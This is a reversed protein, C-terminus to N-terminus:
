CFLFATAAAKKTKERALSFPINKRQWTYCWCERITWIRMAIIHHRRMAFGHWSGGRGVGRAYAIASALSRFPPFTRGKTYISMSFCLVINQWNLMLFYLFLFVQAFVRWFFAFRPLLRFLLFVRLAGGDRSLPYGFGLCLVTSSGGDALTAPRDFAFGGGDIQSLVRSNIVLM